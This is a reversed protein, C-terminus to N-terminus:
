PSLVKWTKSRWLVESILNSSGEDGQIPRWYIAPLMKPDFLTSPFAPKLVVHLLILCGSSSGPAWLRRVEWIFVANFLTMSITPNEKIYYVNLNVVHDRPMIAPGRGLFLTFIFPISGIQIKLLVAWDNATVDIGRICKFTLLWSLEKGKDETNKFRPGSWTLTEWLLM